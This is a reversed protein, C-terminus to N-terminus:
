FISVASSKSCVRVGTVCLFQLVKRKGVLQRAVRAETPVAAYLSQLFLAKDILGSDKYSFQLSAVSLLKLNADVKGVWDAATTQYM